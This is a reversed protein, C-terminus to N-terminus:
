SHRFRFAALGATIMLFALILESSSAAGHVVGCGAGEDQSADDSDDDTDLDADSDSDTDADADTGSDVGADNECDQGEDLVKKVIKDQEDYQHDEGFDEPSLLTYVIYGAPACEHITEFLYIRACPVPCEAYDDGDCDYCDVGADEACDVYYSDCYEDITVAEDKQFIRNDFLKKEENGNLYNWTLRWKWSLAEGGLGITVVVDEEEQIASYIEMPPYGDAFSYDAMVLFSLIINIFLLRKIEKKKELLSSAGMAKPQPKNERNGGPKGATGRYKMREM